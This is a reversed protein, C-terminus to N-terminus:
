EEVEVISAVIEKDADTLGDGRREEHKDLLGGNIYEIFEIFNKLTENDEDVLEVKGGLAAKVYGFTAGTPISGIAPSLEITHMIPLVNKRQMANIVNDLEKLSDRNKVDFVFPVDTYSGSVANGSEDLPNDLTVLGFYVKVRKVSRILTKTAEPLANWDEIYGSPRGLNFGGISDKLDGNLSTALVSKEMEGTDGNWRQWQQRVAFVRITATKSYVVDDGVTLKYAGKPIVEDKLMKGNFEVEAEIPNQNVNLRAISPTAQGSPASSVGILEALSQGRDAAVTLETSM